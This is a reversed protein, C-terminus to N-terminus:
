EEELLIQVQQPHARSMWTTKDVTVKIEVYDRRYSTPTRLFAITGGIETTVDAKQWGYSWPKGERTFQYECLFGSRRAHRAVDPPLLLVRLTHGSQDRWKGLSDSLKILASVMDTYNFHAREYSESMGVVRVRDDWLALTPMDRSRAHQLEDLVYQSTSSPEGDRYAVIAVLADCRDIESLLARALPAGALKRGDVARLRHSEIIGIVHKCMPEDEPRFSCSLFVTEMLVLAVM